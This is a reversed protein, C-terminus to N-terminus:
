FFLRKVSFDLESGKMCQGLNCTMKNCEGIIGKVWDLVMSIEAYLGAHTALGCGTLLM